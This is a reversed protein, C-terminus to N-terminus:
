RGTFQAPRKGVFAAVGEHHDTTAGLHAQLEAERALSQDLTSTAAFHMAQKIAGYAATPGHALRTALEQTAAGLTADPVVANVLGMELAAAASVPEALLAMASARASGILRPLTWSAGSDLGLGIGAFAMLFAASEAAIRFDCAFTFSAGAGAAMGNIAAIVPKPMTMLASCIPNYHLEVTQLPTPDDAELMAVHERLDQGVCFGRGAATLVVVRVAPDHRVDALAEVLANKLEVSLANMAKPRNLTITAIGDTRDVLLVPVGSTPAESAPESM